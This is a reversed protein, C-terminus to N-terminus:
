GDEATSGDKFTVLDVRYLETYSLTPKCWGSIIHKEFLGPVTGYRM